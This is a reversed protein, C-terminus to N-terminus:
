AEDEEEVEVYPKYGLVELAREYAREAQMLQLEWYQRQEPTLEKSNFREM